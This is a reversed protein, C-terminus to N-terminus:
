KPQFSVLITIDGESASDSQSTRTKLKNQKSGARSRLVEFARNTGNTQNKKRPDRVGVIHSPICVILAACARSSPLGSSRVTKESRAAAANVIRTERENWHCFNTAFFEARAKRRSNAKSLTAQDSKGSAVKLFHNRSMPTYM